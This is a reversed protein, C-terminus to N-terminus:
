SVTARVDRNVIYGFLACANAPDNDKDANTNEDNKARYWSETERLYHAPSHDRQGVARLKRTLRRLTANTM